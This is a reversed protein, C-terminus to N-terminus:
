HKRKWPPPGIYKEWGPWDGTGYKGSGDVMTRDWEKLSQKEEETLLNQGTEVMKGCWAIYENWYAQKQGTKSLVLHSARLLQRPLAITIEVCFWFLAKPNGQSSRVSHYIELLDGLTPDLIERTILRVKATPKLSFWYIISIFVKVLGMLFLPGLIIIFIIGVTVNKTHLPLRHFGPLFVTVFLALYGFIGGSVSFWFMIRLLLSKTTKLRQQKPYEKKPIM